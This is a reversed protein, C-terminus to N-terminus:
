KFAKWSKGYDASFLVSDVTSLLLNNSDSPDIDVSFSLKQNTKLFTLKYYNSGDITVRFSAKGIAAAIYSRPKSYDLKMFVPQASVYKTILYQANKGIPIFRVCSKIISYGHPLTEDRIDELLDGRWDGRYRNGMVANVIFYNQDLHDPVVFSILSERNKLEFKKQIQIKGENIKCLVILHNDAFIVRTPDKPHVLISKVIKLGSKGLGKLKKIKLTKEELKAIYTGGNYTGFYIGGNKQPSSMMTSISDKQNARQITEGTAIDVLHLGDKGGKLFHQSDLFQAYVPELMFGDPKMEPRSPRKRTQASLDLSLGVHMFVLSVVVIIAFKYKKNM